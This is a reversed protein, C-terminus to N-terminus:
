VASWKWWVLVVAGVLVMAGVVAEIVGRVAMM